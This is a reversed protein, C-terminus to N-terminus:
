WSVQRQSYVASWVSHACAVARSRDLRLELHVFRPREPDRRERGYRVRMRSRSRAFRMRSRVAVTPIVLYSGTWDIDDPTGCLLAVANSVPLWHADVETLSVIQKALLGRDTM